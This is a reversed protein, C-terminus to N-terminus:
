RSPGDCGASCGRPPSRESRRSRCSPRPPPAVGALARGRLAQAAGGLRRARRRGPASASRPTRAPAPAASRAGAPASRPRRPAPRGARGPRSSARQRAAMQAVDEAGDRVTARSSRATLSGTLRRRRSGRRRKAWVGPGAASVGHRSASHHADIELQGTQVAGVLDDRDAGHRDPVPRHDEALRHVRQRAGIPRGIVRRHQHVLQAGGVQQVRRREVVGISSSSSTAPRGPAPTGCRSPPACSGPGRAAGGAGAAARRRRCRPAPGPTAARAHRRRGPPATAPAAPETSPWGASSGWWARPSASVVALANM